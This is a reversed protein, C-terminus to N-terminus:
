VIVLALACLLVSHCHGPSFQIPFHPFAIRHANLQYRFSLYCGAVHFSPGQIKWTSFIVAGIGYDLEALLWCQLRLLMPPGVLPLGSHPAGKEFGEAM